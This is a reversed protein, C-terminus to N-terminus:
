IRQCALEMIKIGFVFINSAWIHSDKTKTTRVESNEFWLCSWKKTFLDHLCNPNLRNVTKFVELIMIKLRKTLLSEQKSCKLLTEFSSEYDNHIIRLSREQLKELKNNNVQGCFHWVLPCYNFNSAVFSNYIIHKSKSDLHKSIRALANLQRAARCCMASIHDNFQLRDDIIVGLLKVRSESLLTIDSEIEIKQQELPDSSLVMFQFKDPNAKMSNDGFWKIANRCDHKLNTLIANIDPTSYIMSNDDAYNYLKCNQIFLFLDNMFVNFLFPGLISGQPVGKTLLKWSSRSNSIKVRQRRGKLYSFMLHCAATSLGYAHLKAVLLGHPLCDFAKSLDMFVAGSKMNKDLASKLDEIFRLLLTQCSYLKMFASLLDNFLARFHNVVQDNLVTEYTKSIATLVSVPRYNNKKLNDTNKYVPSVEACKMIGPFSRLNISTNIIHCLPASLERHAIRILKGPILDYGTAKTPNIIKLIIMVDNADVSHFDFNEIVNDYHRKIMMVSPHNAYEDIAQPVPANRLDSNLNLAELLRFCKRRKKKLLYRIVVRYVSYYSLCESYLQKWTFAVSDWQHFTLTPEPLAKTGDPLLANGSGVNVVQDIHVLILRILTSGSWHRWKVDSPWLSNYSELPNVKHLHLQHCGTWTSDKELWEDVRCGRWWQHCRLKDYHCSVTGGAVVFSDFQCDRARLTHAILNIFFHNRFCM